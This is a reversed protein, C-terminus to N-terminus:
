GRGTRLYTASVKLVKLLAPLHWDSVNSRGTEWFCVTPGSVGVMAAMAAQSLGLANRTARIREGVTSPKAVTATRTAVAPKPAAQKPAAPKSFFSTIPKDSPTAMPVRRKGEPIRKVDPMLVHMVHVEPARVPPEPKPAPKPAPIPATTAIAATPGKGERVVLLREADRLKKETERLALRGDNMCAEMDDRTREAFMRRNRAEALEAELSAVRRELGAAHQERRLTEEAAKAQREQAERHARLAPDETVDFQICADAGDKAYKPLFPTKGNQAVPHISSSAPSQPREGRGLLRARLMRFEEPSSDRFTKLLRARFGDDKRFRARLVRIVNVDKGDLRLRMYAFSWAMVLELPKVIEVLDDDDVWQRRKPLCSAFNTAPVVHDMSFFSSIPRKAPLPKKKKQKSVMGDPPGDSQPQSGDTDRRLARRLEAEANLTSRWDSPTAAMFVPNKAEPHTLRWHGGGTKAAEWGDDKWRRLNESMGVM